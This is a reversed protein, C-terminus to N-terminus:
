EAFFAVGLLGPGTHAGMVPTFDTVHLEVCDFREDISRRLAEAEGPVDAHLVAAHVPRGAVDEEMLRLIEAMAREKTRPRALPEVRGEEVTLVPCIKLLTGALAAAGGVRGGRRLYKFTALTFYIRTKQAVAEIRALVEPLLAGSAAARAAELVVFGQGMAASPCQIAVIQVGDVLDGATRAVNYTTSLSVSMHISVIASASGALDTYIRLFDGVSPASSTPTEGGARLLGYVVEPSIDIGDRYDRGDFVLLHPVIRIGLEHALERPVTASSDTVIAVRRVVAGEQGAQFRNGWGTPGVM